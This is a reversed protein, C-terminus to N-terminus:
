KYDYRINTAKITRSGNGISSFTYFTKPALITAGSTATSSVSSGVFTGKIDVYEYYIKNNPTGVFKLKYWPGPNSGKPQSPTGIVTCATFNTFGNGLQQPVNLYHTYTSQSSPTMFYDWTRCVNVIDKGATDRVGVITDYNGAYMSLDLTIAWWTTPTGSKVTALDCSVTNYQTDGNTYNSVTTANAPNATADSIIRMKIYTNEDATTGWWSNTTGPSTTTLTRPTLGALADAQPQVMIPVYKSTGVHGDTYSVIAQSSHRYDVDPGAYIMHNSDTSDGTLLMGSTDSVDGLGKSDLTINYAYGNATSKGLTPCILAGADVRVDNWITASPFTEEHDQSWMLISASIQRQNSTCTTQRAKERARAFVPFLIAALIAIIAIVVLLEILTFGKSGQHTTKIM